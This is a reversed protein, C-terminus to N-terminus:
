YETIRQIALLVIIIPTNVTWVLPKASQVNNTLTLSSTAKKAYVNIDKRFEIPKSIVHQVTIMLLNVILVLFKVFKALNM